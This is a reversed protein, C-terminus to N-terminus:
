RAALVALVAAAGDELLAGPLDTGFRDSARARWWHGAYAGALAAAAGVVAHPGADTRHRGALAGAAYGGALVRGSLGSPGLRSPAVTSKDLVLEGITLPGALLKRKAGRTALAVTAFGASSRAGAAAGVALSRAFSGATSTRDGAPEDTAALTAHATLGYGLHPVADSIWEATSWSRPDTVGLAASSVDTAAMAAAGLLPGGLAAPLRLGAARLVGALGGVAVGASIGALPGMGAVRDARQRRNGPVALGLHDVLATVARQPTDGASRARITMDLYTLTNLAATGAAGALIGRGLAARLTSM